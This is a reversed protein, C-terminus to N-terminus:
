KFIATDSAATKPPASARTLVYAAAPIMVAALITPLVWDKAVFASVYIFSIAMMVGAFVKARVPIVRHLHWARISPGLKPHFWLWNQFKDSSKSFAWFAIILFVTTPLGPIFIGVLGIGVNTWGFVLLFWRVWFRALNVHSKEKTEPLRHDQSTM